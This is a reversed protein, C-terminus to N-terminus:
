YGPTDIILIKGEEIYWLLNASPQETNITKLLRELLPNKNEKIFEVVRDKAQKAKSAYDPSKLAVKLTMISEDDIFEKVIYYGEKNIEYVKIIRIHEKIPQLMDKLLLLGKSSGEFKQRSKKRWKKIAINGYDNNGRIPYNVGEGGGYQEPVQPLESFQKGTLQNYRELATEQGIKVETNQLPYGKIFKDVRGPPFDGGNDKSKTRKINDFPEREAIEEGFVRAIILAKIEKRTLRTDRSLIKKIEGIANEDTVLVKQANEIALRIKEGEIPDDLRVQLKKMVKLLSPFNELLKLSDAIFSSLPAGTVHEAGDILQTMGYLSNLGTFVGEGAGNTMLAPFQSTGVAVISNSGCGGQAKAPLLRESIAQRAKIVSPVEKEIAKTIKVLGKAAFYGNLGVEVLYRGYVHGIFEGKDGEELKNYYEINKPVYTLIAHPVMLLLELKENTIKAVEDSMDDSDLIRIGDRTLEQFLGVFSGALIINKCGHAVGKLFGQLFRSLFVNRPPPKTGLAWSIVNITSLTEEPTIQGYPEFTSVSNNDDPEVEFGLVLAVFKIYDDPNISSM